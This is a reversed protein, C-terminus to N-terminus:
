IKIFLLATRFVTMGAFAPIEKEATATSEQMRLFSMFVTKLVAWYLNSVLAALENGSIEAVIKNKINQTIPL